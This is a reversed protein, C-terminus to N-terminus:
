AALPLEEVWNDLEQWSVVREVLQWRCLRECKPCRSFTDNRDFVVEHLCCSSAYLALERVTETTKM